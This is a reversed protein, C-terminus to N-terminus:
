QAKRQTSYLSQCSSGFAHTVMSALSKLVVQDKMTCQYPVVFHPRDGEKHGSWAAFYATPESLRAKAAQM